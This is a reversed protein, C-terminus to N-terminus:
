GCPFSQPGDSQGTSWVATFDGRASGQCTYVATVIGTGNGGSWVLTGNRFIKVSLNAGDGGPPSATDCEGEADVRLPSNAFVMDHQTSTCRALTAPSAAQAPIAQTAALMGAAGGTALVLAMVSRRGSKRAGTPIRMIDEERKSQAGVITAAGDNRRV